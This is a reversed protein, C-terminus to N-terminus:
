SIFFVITPMLAFHTQDHKSMWYPVIPIYFFIFFTYIIAYCNWKAPDKRHESHDPYDKSLALATPPLWPLKVSRSVPITHNWGIKTCTGHEKCLM